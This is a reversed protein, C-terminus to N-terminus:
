AQDPAVGGSMAWQGWTRFGEPPPPIPPPELAKQPQRMSEVVAARLQAPSPAYRALTSDSIRGRLITMATEHDLGSFEDYVAPASQWSPVSGWWDEIFDVMGAFQARDM